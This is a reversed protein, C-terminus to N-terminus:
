GEPGQASAERAWDRVWRREDTLLRAMAAKASADGRAALAALALTPLPQEGAIAELGAVLGSDPRQVAATIAANQIVERYSKARLGAAVVERSSDPALRTLATLAAARVQDSSDKDWAQRVLEAAREGGVRGLSEVAARRVRASTDALASDLAARSREPAFRGLASAAEARTLDYDASLVAHALAAAALTDGTRSALQGIAWSRTWLDHHRHLLNALWPTPQHFSLTKLVANSDDFAVMTPPRRIGEIRVTQERRDIVTQAVVDGRETGVRIAIPARFALPTVFRVGASDASATDVQTQRM